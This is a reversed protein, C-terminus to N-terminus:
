GSCRRPGAAHRGSAVVVAAVAFRLTALTLPPVESMAVKAAVFSTGWIVSAALLALVAVTRPSWHARGFSRRVCGHRLNAVGVSIPAVTVPALTARNTSM